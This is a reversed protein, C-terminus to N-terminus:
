QLVHRRMEACHRAIMEEDLDTAPKIVVRPQGATIEVQAELWCGAAVMRGEGDFVPTSGPPPNFVIAVRRGRVKFERAWMEFQDRYLEVFFGPVREFDTVMTM